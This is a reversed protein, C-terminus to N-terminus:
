RHAGRTDSWESTSAASVGRHDSFCLLLYKRILLCHELLELRGGLTTLYYEIGNKTISIEHTSLPTLKPALPCVTVVPVHLMLAAKSLFFVVRLSIIHM